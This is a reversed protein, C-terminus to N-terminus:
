PRAGTKRRALEAEIEELSPQGGGQGTYELMLEYLTSDPAAEGEGWGMFGTAKRYNALAQAAEALSAFSTIDYDIGTDERIKPDLSYLHMNARNLIDKQRNTQTQQETFGGAKSPALGPYLADKQEEQSLGDFGKLKLDSWTPGKDKPLMGMIDKMAGMREPYEYIQTDYEAKGYGTGLQHREGMLGAQAEIDGLDFALREERGKQRGQIGGRQLGAALAGIGGVVDRGRGKKMGMSILPLAASAAALGYDAMGPKHPQQYATAAAQRQGGLDEMGSLYAQNQEKMGGLYDTRAAQRQTMNEEFGQMFWQVIRDADKAKLADILESTNQPM